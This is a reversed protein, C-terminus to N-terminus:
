EIVCQDVPPKTAADLSLVTQLFSAAAGLGHARRPSMFPVTYIGTAECCSLTCRVEGRGLDAQFAEPTEVRLTDGEPVVLGEKTRLADRSGFAIVSMEQESRYSSVRISVVAQGSLPDFTAQPVISTRHVGPARDTTHSHVRTIASLLPLPTNVIHHNAAGVPSLCVLGALVIQNAPISRWCGM